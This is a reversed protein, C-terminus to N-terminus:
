KERPITGHENDFSALLTDDTLCVQRKMRRFEIIFDILKPHALRLADKPVRCYPLGGKQCPMYIEECMADKMKTFKDNTISEQLTNGIVNGISQIIDFSSFYNSANGLVKLDSNSFKCSNFEKVLEQSILQVREDHDPRKM